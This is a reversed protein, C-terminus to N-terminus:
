FILKRIITQYNESVPLYHSKTRNETDFISIEISETKPHYCRVFKKNVRFSKHITIFQSKMFGKDEMRSFSFDILNVPQRNIFHVQKNNSESGAMKDACLYVIDDILIKNKKTKNFDLYVYQPAAFFSVEKLFRKFSKVFQEENFPKTIHDVCIEADRKLNEIDRIYEKTEGIFMVPLQLEQAVDLGNMTNNLLVLDTVLIEPHAIGVEDLFHDSNQSTLVVEVDPLSSLYKVLKELQRSNDELLAIRYTRTM